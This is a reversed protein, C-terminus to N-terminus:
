LAESIEFWTPIGATLICIYGLNALEEEKVGIKRAKEIWPLAAEGRLDVIYNGVMNLYKLKDSVHGYDLIMEQIQRKDNSKVAESVSEIFSTDEDQLWDLIVQFISEIRQPKQDPFDVKVGKLELAYAIAEIGVSLAKIGKYWYATLFYEVLEPLSLGHEIAGKTHYVMSRPYLRAANISGILADKEKRSLVPGDQMIKGRIDTYYDLVEPSYDHMKQVWGPVQDYVQKFYALGDSM